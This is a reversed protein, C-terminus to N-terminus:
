KCNFEFKRHCKPCNVTHKGKKRPLRLNVRCHPCKTFVHTKKEKRKLRHLKFSSVIKNILVEFKRNEEYRKAINRSFMRFFSYGLMLMQILYLILSHIFSNVIMVSLASWIMVISLKDTGYRGYMFREFKQRFNM